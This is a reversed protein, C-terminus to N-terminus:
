AESWSVTLRAWDEKQLEEIKMVSNHNIGEQLDDQRGSMANWVQSSPTHGGTPNDCRMTDEYLLICSIDYLRACCMVMYWTWSLEEMQFTFRPRKLAIEVHWRESSVRPLSANHELQKPFPQCLDQLLRWSSGDQKM